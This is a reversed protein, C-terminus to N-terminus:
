FKQIRRRCYDRRAWWRLKNSPGKGDNAALPDSQEALTFAAAIDLKQEREGGRKVRRESLVSARLRLSVPM